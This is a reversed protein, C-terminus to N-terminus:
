IIYICIEYENNVRKVYITHIGVNNQGTHCM